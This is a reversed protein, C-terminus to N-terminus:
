RDQRILDSHQMSDPQDAEKAEDDVQFNSLGVGVLRYLQHPGLEVRECLGLAIRTFEECSAPPAPLTLSRAFSNFEKTKLKLGVPRAGRVNERSAAWVKEALRRILV